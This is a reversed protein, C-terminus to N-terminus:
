WTVWRACGLVTIVMLVAAANTPTGAWEQHAIGDEEINRAKTHPTPSASVGAEALLARREDASGDCTCQTAQVAFLIAFCVLLQAISYHLANIKKLAPVRYAPPLGSRFLWFVAGFSIGFTLVVWATRSTIRARWCSALFVAVIPACWILQMDQIYLFLEDGSDEIVPLWAISVTAITLTFIQGVRVLEAEPRGPYWRAYIDMTFLTSCSNFCSALAAMFSSLMVAIMPGQWGAPLLRAVLLAFARNSDREIEDPYLAAAILGPFVMMFMPLIKLWGAFVCASQGTSVSKAALVRQVMVQDTCWYWLGSVPMGFLVGFWPFDPHDLPKLLEFHTPPLREHLGSWGGVADMGYWLLASCGVLLVISQLVETYVVAALGGITTYVGTLALLSISAFWKNWHLVEHLVVAGAFITVAIKTFLTSAITLWTFMTRFSSDFRRELYEPVTFIELELYHPIFVWGLVLMIFCASWEWSGVAIGQAAGSGALGVLHDTGLNSAFLSFGIAWWPIGRGGLFYHEADAGGVHKNVYLTVVALTLLYILISAIDVASLHGFTVVDL